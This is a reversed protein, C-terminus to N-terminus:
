LLTRRHAGVTSGRISVLRFNRKKYWQPQKTRNKTDWTNNKIKGYM